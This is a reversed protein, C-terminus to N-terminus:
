AVAVKEGPKEVGRIGVFSSRLGGFIQLESVGGIGNGLKEAGRMAGSISVERKGLAVEEAYRSFQVGLIDVYEKWLKCFALLAILWIIWIVGVTFQCKFSRCHFIIVNIDDWDPVIGIIDLSPFRPLIQFLAYALPLRIFTGHLLYLPFSISGL